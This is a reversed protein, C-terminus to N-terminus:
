LVYIIFHKSISFIDEGYSNNHTILTNDYVWEKDKVNEKMKNTYINKGVFYILLGILVLVLLILIGGIIKMIKEKM